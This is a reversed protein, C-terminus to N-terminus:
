RRRPAPKANARGPERGPRDARSACRETSGVFPRDGHRLEPATNASMIQKEWVGRDSVGFSNKLLQIVLEGPPTM